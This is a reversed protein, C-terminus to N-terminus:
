PFSAQDHSEDESLGAGVTLGLGENHGGRPACELGVDSNALSKWALVFLLNPAGRSDNLNQNPFSKSKRPNAQGFRSKEVAQASGEPLFKRGQSRGGAPAVLPRFAHFAGARPSRSRGGEPGSRRM